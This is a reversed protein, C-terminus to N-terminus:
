CFNELNYVFLDDKVFVELKLFVREGDVANAFSIVSYNENDIHTHVTIYNLYEYSLCKQVFYNYRKLLVTNQFNDSTLTPAIKTTNKLLTQCSKSDLIDFSLQNELIFDVLSFQVAQM